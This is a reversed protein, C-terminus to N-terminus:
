GPDGGLWRGLARRRPRHVEIGVGAAAGEERSAGGPEGEPDLSLRCAPALVAWEPGMPGESSREVRITSQSPPDPFDAYNVTM